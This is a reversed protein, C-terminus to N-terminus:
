RASIDPMLLLTAVVHSFSVKLGLAGNSAV